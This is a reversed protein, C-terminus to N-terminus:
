QIRIATMSAVVTNLVVPSLTISVANNNAAILSLIDGALLQLIASGHVVTTGTACGFQSNPQSLGNVLLAIASPENRAVTFEVNYTGSNSVIFSGNGLSIFGSNVAVSNVPIVGGAPITFPVLTTYANLYSPTFSAPAQWAATSGNSTLVRGNTAVSQTPLLATIATAATTQGTGGNAIAVTGSVTTATTANGTLAGVFTTATITVGNSINHSGLSIDGTMTGGSLSLKTNEAAIARTTENSINTSLTTEAGQARTTEATIATANTADSADVYSKNAADTAAIPTSVGNILHASMNIAGTMTGGSLSLKTNEAAIARTTENSINTSLTTEAGQARTTEAAIATANTADGADVYSKNAADTAAIPTSLSNILHSGMNLTGGLILPATITVNTGNGNVNNQIVSSAEWANHGVNANWFLTQGATGVNVFGAAPNGVPPLPFQFILNSGLGVPTSMTFTHGAGDDLVFNQAGVSRNQAFAAQVFGDSTFTLIAFLAAISFLSTRSIRSPHNM